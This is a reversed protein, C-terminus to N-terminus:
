PNLSTLFDSQRLFFKVSLVIDYLLNCVVDCRNEQYERKFLWRVFCFYAPFCVWKKVLKKKENYAMDLVSIICIFLVLLHGNLSHLESAAADM